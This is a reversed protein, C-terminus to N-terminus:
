VQTVTPKYWKWTGASLQGFLAGSVLGQNDTQLFAWGYNVSSLCFILGFESAGFVPNSLGNNTCRVAVYRNKIYKTKIWDGIKNMTSADFAVQNGDTCLRIGIKETTSDINEKVNGTLAGFKADILDMNGNIDAVNIDETGAPKKLNLNPTYSAM